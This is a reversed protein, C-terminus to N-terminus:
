KFALKTRSRLEQGVLRLLIFVIRLGSLEILQFLYSGPAKFRYSFAPQAQTEARGLFLSCGSKVAAM